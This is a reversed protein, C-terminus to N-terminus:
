TEGKVRLSVNTNSYGLDVLAIAGRVKEGLEFANVPGLLGLAIQDAVLGAGKIATQFDNLLQQKMAGVWVNYKTLGAKAEVRTANAPPVIFCDFVYDPLDQHFYTKPNLKLMQRIERVPLLPLELSRLISQGPGVTLTEHKVKTDLKQVVNRFHESLVLPSPFTESVPTDVIAYNLLCFGKETGQVLVAKTHRTGLDIALDSSFLSFISRLNM